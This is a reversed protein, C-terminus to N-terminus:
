KGCNTLLKRLIQLKNSEIRAGLHLVANQTTHFGETQVHGCMTTTITKSTFCHAM